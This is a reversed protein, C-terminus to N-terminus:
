ISDFDSKNQIILKEIQKINLFEENNFSNYSSANAINKRNKELPYIIYSDKKEKLSLFEVSSVLEEHIKEGERVGIIKINKNKDISRVLDMIRYSPLKPVFIEAGKMSNLCKFVFEVAYSLTINFRTM